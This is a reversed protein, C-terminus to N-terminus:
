GTQLEEDEFPDTNLWNDVALGAIDGIRSELNEWAVVLDAGADYIMDRVDASAMDVLAIVPVNRLGSISRVTDFQAAADLSCTELDIIMIDPHIKYGLLSHEILHGIASRVDEKILFEPTDWIRSVARCLRQKHGDRKIITILLPNQGAPRRSFPM